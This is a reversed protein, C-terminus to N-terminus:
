SNTSFGARLWAALTFDQSEGSETALLAHTEVKASNSDRTTTSNSRPIPQEFLKEDYEKLVVIGKQVLQLKQYKRAAFINSKFIM